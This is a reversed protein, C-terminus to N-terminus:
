CNPVKIMKGARILYRPSKINNIAAIEKISMCHHRAAIRSLTDGNQVVYPLLDERENYGADHLDAATLLLAQDNCNQQYLAVLQAPVIVTDGAKIRDGPKIAPNLNRLTRFWGDRLDLNGFCITLEGLSLDNALLLEAREVQYDPLELHYREPHMFLWAAALVKPVYARTDRPLAYFFESDWFDKGRLKRNLRKLRNEGSNYAALAKELSNQLRLLQEQLYAVNARASLEPDMRLDFGDRTTLGYRKGTARM